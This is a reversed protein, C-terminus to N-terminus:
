LKKYMKYNYLEVHDRIVSQKLLIKFGQNQFMSKAIASAHVTMEKLELEYAHIELEKLIKTAIKQHQYEPLVYMLDIYGDNKINSFGVIKDDKIAVLTYTKQLEYQWILMLEDRKDINGWAKLQEVSYSTDISLIATFFIDIISKLDNDSYQRIIM